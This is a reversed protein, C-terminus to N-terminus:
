LEMEATAICDPCLWGSAGFITNDYYELDSVEGCCECENDEPCPYPADGCWNGTDEIDSM